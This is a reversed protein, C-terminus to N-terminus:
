YMPICELHINIHIHIYIYYIFMFTFIYLHKTHYSPKIRTCTMHVTAHQVMNCQDIPYLMYIYTHQFVMVMHNVNCYMTFSLVSRMEWSLENTNWAVKLDKVTFLDEVPTAEWM